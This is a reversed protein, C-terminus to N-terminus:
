HQEETACSGMKGLCSYSGATYGLSPLSEPVGMFLGHLTILPQDTPLSVTLTGLTEVFDCDTPRGVRILASVNTPILAGRSISVVYWTDYDILMSDSTPSQFEILTLQAKTASSYEAFLAIGISDDVMEGHNTANSSLSWLGIYTGEDMHTIKFAFGYDLDADICIDDTSLSFAETDGDIFWGSHLGNGSIVVDTPSGLFDFKNLDYM